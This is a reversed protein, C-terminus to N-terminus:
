AASAVVRKSANGLNRLRKNFEEVEAFEITTDEYAGQAISILVHDIGDKLDAEIKRITYTGALQDRNTARKNEHIGGELIEVVATPFKVLPTIARLRQNPVEQSGTLSDYIAAATAIHSLLERVTQLEPGTNSALNAEPDLALSGSPLKRAADTFKKVAKAMPARLDAAAPAVLKRAAAQINTAYGQAFVSALTERAHAEKIKELADAYWENPDQDSLFADRTLTDAVVRTNQAGAEVIKRIVLARTPPTLGFAQYAETIRSLLNHSATIPRNYYTM